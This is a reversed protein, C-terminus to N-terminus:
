KLARVNQVIDKESIRGCGVRIARMSVVRSAKKPTKAKPSKMKVSVFRCTARHSLLESVLLGRRGVGSSRRPELQRGPGAHSRKDNTRPGIRGGSGGGLFAHGFLGM